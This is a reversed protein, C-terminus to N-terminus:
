VRNSRLFLFQSSFMVFFSRALTCPPHPERVIPLYPVSSVGIDRECHEVRAPGLIRALHYSSSARFPPPSLHFSPLLWLGGLGWERRSSFGVRGARSVYKSIHGPMGLLPGASRQRGAAPGLLLPLPPSYHVSPSPRTAVNIARTSVFSIYSTPTRNRLVAMGCLTSMLRVRGRLVRVDAQRRYPPRPVLVLLLSCRVRCSLAPECPIV